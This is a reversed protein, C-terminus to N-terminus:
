LFMAMYVPLYDVGVESKLDKTYLLYPKALRSPYKESFADLSKHSKYGSSKVEIPSVKTFETILLDVEYYHNSPAPMTYYYLERGNARLMQAVINEFLYGLNTSMKDNLM